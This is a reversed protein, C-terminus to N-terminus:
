VCEAHIRHLDAEIETLKARQEALLASLHKHADALSPGPKPGYLEVRWRVTLKEGRGVATLENLHATTRQVLLKLYLRRAYLQRMPDTPPPATGLGDLSMEAGDPLLYARKYPDWCPNGGHEAVFAVARGQGNMWPLDPTNNM